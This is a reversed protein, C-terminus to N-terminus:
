VRIPHIGTMANVKWIFDKDIEVGLWDRAPTRTNVCVILAKFGEYVFDCLLRLPSIQQLPMVLKIGLDSCMKQNWAVGEPLDIDGNILTDVGRSKLELLSERFGQEYNDWNVKSQILSLRLEQAQFVIIKSPLHHSRTMSGDGRIFNLMYSIDIEQSQTKYYALCCDKGGSWSIVANM